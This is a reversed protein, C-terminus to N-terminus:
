PVVSEIISSYSRTKHVYETSDDNFLSDLKDTSKLSANVQTHM